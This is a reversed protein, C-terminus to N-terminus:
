LLGNVKSRSNKVNRKFSINSNGLWKENCRIDSFKM